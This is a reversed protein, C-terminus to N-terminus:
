RYMEISSCRLVSNQRLATKRCILNILLPQSIYSPVIAVVKVYDHIQSLRCYVIMMIIMMRRGCDLFHLSYLQALEDNCCPLCVKAEVIPM